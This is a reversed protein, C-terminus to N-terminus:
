NRKMYRWTWIEANDAVVENVDEDGNKLLM